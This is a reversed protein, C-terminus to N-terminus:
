VKEKSQVKKGNVNEMEFKLNTLSNIIEKTLNKRIEDASLMSAYLESVRDPIALMTKRVSIAIAEWEQKIKETEMLIGAEKLFKLKAQKALYLQKVAESQRRGMASNFESDAPEILTDVNVGNLLGDSPPSGGEALEMDEFSAQGKRPKQIYGDSTVIGAKLHRELPPLGKRKRMRATKIEEAKQRRVQKVKRRKIIAEETYFAPNPATSIFKNRNSKYEIYEKGDIIDHQIRNDDIARLYNSRSISLRLRFELSPIWEGERAKLIEKIESKM